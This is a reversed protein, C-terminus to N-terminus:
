IFGGKKVAKRTKCHISNYLALVMGINKEGM